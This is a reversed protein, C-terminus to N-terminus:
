WTKVQVKKRGEGNKKSHTVEGRGDKFFIGEERQRPRIKKVKEGIGRTKEWFKWDVKVNLKSDFRSAIPGGLSVHSERNLFFYKNRKLLESARGGM